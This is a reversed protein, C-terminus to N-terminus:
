IRLPRIPIPCISFTGIGAQVGVSMGHVLTEKASQSWDRLHVHPDIMLM